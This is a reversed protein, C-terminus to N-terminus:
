LDEKKIIMPKECIVNSGMKFSMLIHRKHLFNPSCITTYDINNKLVSKKYEIEKTFFNTDPYFSDLIGVSDSIDYACLLDVNNDKLAKLHRPGIYGGVGIISFKIM